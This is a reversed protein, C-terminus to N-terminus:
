LCLPLLRVINTESSVTTGVQAAPGGAQPTPRNAMENAYLGLMIIFLIAFLIAVGTMIHVGYRSWFSEKGSSKPESSYTKTPQGGNTFHVRGDAGEEEEDEPIAETAYRYSKGNDPALVSGPQPGVTAQRYSDMNSFNRGSKEAYPDYASQDYGPEPDYTPNHSM